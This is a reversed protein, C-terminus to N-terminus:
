QRIRKRLAERVRPWEGAVISYVVSDRTRGGQVLMHSRLVGERTAGLKAIAAQSRENLVDTIFAVRQVGLVEFAHTLLLLKCEPNVRTGWCDPQYWTAGIEIRRHKPAIDLYSTSGVCAGDALRRVAFPFWRGAEREALATAFWPDFGEGAARFAIATWIREDSAARRLPERHAEALPELAVWRGTLTPVQM